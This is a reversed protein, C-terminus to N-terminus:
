VVTGLMMDLSRWSAGFCASVCQLYLPIHVGFLGSRAAFLNMLILAREIYFLGTSEFLGMEQMQEELELFEDLKKSKRKEVEMGRLMVKTGKPHFVAFEETVDRGALNQFVLKGGPHHKAYTSVDYQVGDITLM